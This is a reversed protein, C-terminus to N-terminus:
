DIATSRRGARDVAVDFYSRRAHFRERSDESNIEKIMYIYIYIRQRTNNKLYFCQM